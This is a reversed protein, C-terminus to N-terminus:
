RRSRMGPTLPNLPTLDRTRREADAALLRRAEALRDSLGDARASAARLRQEAERRGDAASAQQHAASQAAPALLRRLQAGALLADAGSTGLQPRTESLFQELAARRASAEAAARAADALGQEAHVVAARARAALRSLRRIRIRDATM